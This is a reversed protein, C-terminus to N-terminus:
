GRRRRGQHTGLTADPEDPLVINPEDGNPGIKNLAIGGMSEHGSGANFMSHQTQQELEPQRRASARERADIGANGSKCRASCKSISM